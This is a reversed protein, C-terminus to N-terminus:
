SMFSMKQAMKWDSALYCQLYSLLSLQLHQFNEDYYSKFYNRELYIQMQHLLGNSNENAKLVEKSVTNMQVQHDRLQQLHDDSIRKEIAAMRLDNFIKQYHDDSLYFCNKFPHHNQLPRYGNHHNKLPRISDRLCHCYIMLSQHLYSAGIKMLLKPFNQSGHGDFNQMLLHYGVQNACSKKM